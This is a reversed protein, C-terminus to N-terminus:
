DLLAALREAVTSKGVALWPGSSGDPQTIKLRYGLTGRHTVRVSRGDTCHTITSAGKSTLASVAATVAALLTAPDEGCAVAQVRDQAREAAREAAEAKLAAARAAHATSPRTQWHGHGICVLTRTTRKGDPWVHVVERYTPLSQVKHFVAVRDPGKVPHRPGLQRTWTEASTRAETRREARRASRRVTGPLSVPRPRQHIDITDAPRDVPEGAADTMDGLLAFADVITMPDDPDNVRAAIAGYDLPEHHIVQRKQTARTGHPQWDTGPDADELIATALRDLTSALVRPDSDIVLRTGDRLTWVERDPSAGSTVPAHRDNRVHARKLDKRPLAHRGDDVLAVYRPDTSAHHLQTM